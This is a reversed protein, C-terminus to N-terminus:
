RSAMTVSGFNAFSISGTIPVVRQEGLYHWRDMTSSSPWGRSGCGCRVLSNYGTRGLFCQCFGMHPLLFQGECFYDARTPRHLHVLRIGFPIVHKAGSCASDHKMTQWCFRDGKDSQFRRARSILSTTAVFGESVESKDRSAGEGRCVYSWWQKSDVLHRGLERGCNYPGGPLRWWLPPGVGLQLIDVALFQWSSSEGLARGPTLLTSGRVIFILSGQVAWDQLLHGVFYILICVIM